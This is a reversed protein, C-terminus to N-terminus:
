WTVTFVTGKQLEMVRELPLRWTVSKRDASLEGASHSRIPRPASVSFALEYGAFMGAFMQSLEKDSEAAAAADTAGPAAQEDATSLVQRFVFSDGSRELSMPMDAFADVEAIAEVRDFGIEAGIYVDKEDDRRHVAILKLGRAQSLAERLEEEDVPLPLSSGGQSGLDVLSRAIRYEMKLVGSGDDRFTARSEIGICSSLLLSAAAAMVARARKGGM